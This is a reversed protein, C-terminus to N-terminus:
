ARVKLPKQSVEDEVKKLYPLDKGCHRVNNCAGRLAKSFMKQRVATHRSLVKIVLM